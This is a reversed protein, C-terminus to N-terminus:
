NTTVKAKFKFTKSFNVKILKYFFYFWGFLDYHDMDKKTSRWHIYSSKVKNRNCAGCEIRLFM